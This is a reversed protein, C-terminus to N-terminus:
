NLSRVLRRAIRDASKGKSNLLVVFRTLRGDPNEIYGVRTSIGHLTGSKYYQRGNHRMLTYYPSFAELIRSLDKAKIRNARSIGSGENLLINKLHLTQDAYALAARVGKDITGPEGYASIGAAILIQNTIYNNSYELLREIIDVLTFPSKHRLIFQDRDTRVRGIKIQGSVPVGNRELFYAFLHGSYLTIQNKDHSLVIRGETQKTAKVRKLVIPLLPSQPEASVYQNNITKFTVTNFNVCLAGNPADYPESSSSVGPIILPQSFYSDDLIIDNIRDLRISLSHAIDAVIESILLPDGYGKITLNHSSDLYFETVFRYDAGLYNLAVLSTFVKLTSAPILPNNENKSILVRGDPDTVLIADRKGILDALKRLHDSAPCDTPTLGFFVTLGIGVLVFKIISVKVYNARYTKNATKLHQGM